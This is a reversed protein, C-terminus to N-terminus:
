SAELKALKLTLSKLLKLKLDRLVVHDRRKVRMCCASGRWRVRRGDRTQWTRARARRQAPRMLPPWRPTQRGMRRECVHDLTNRHQHAGMSYTDRLVLLSQIYALYEHPPLAM